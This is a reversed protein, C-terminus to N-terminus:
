SEKSDNTPFNRRHWAGIQKAGTNLLLWLSLPTAVFICPIMLFFSYGVLPTLDTGGTLCAHINKMGGQCGFFDYAVVGLKWGAWTYAVPLASLLYRSRWAMRGEYRSLLIPPAFLAAGLLALLLFNMM